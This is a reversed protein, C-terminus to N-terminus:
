INDSPASYINGNSIFYLINSITRFHLTKAGAVTANPYYRWTGGNYTAFGTESGAYVNGAFSEISNINVNLPAIFNNLWSSPSNLNNGPIKAIGIGSKTAAFLTDRNATMATVPTKIPIIGLQYYPADIFNQTNVDVKQIGYGTGVFMANGYQYFCNISKNSESSNKIDYITKLVNGNLDMLVLSGDSAGIWIKNQTDIILSTLDINVLGNLNTFKRFEETSSNYFFM